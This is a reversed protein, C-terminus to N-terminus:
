PAPSVGPYSPKSLAGFTDVPWYRLWARGIVHSIDIPGFTRSDASDERHDGMVLLEGGPVLWDSPGGPTPDTTQRVGNESFIYPEDLATGNVYVIGDKLQVHDGPLGIVRKIFPTDPRHPPRFVVIDGRHVGDLRYVLKNGLLREGTYLNPEMCSGYVKFGQVIFSEVFLFILLTALLTEAWERWLPKSRARVAVGPAVPFPLAESAAETAAPAEPRAPYEPLPSVQEM